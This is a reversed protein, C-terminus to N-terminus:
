VPHELCNVGSIPNNFYVIYMYMPIFSVIQEAVM